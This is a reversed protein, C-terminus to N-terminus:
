LIIRRSKKIVAIEQAEFDKVKKDLVESERESENRACHYNLFDIWFKSTQKEKNLEEFCKIGSPEKFFSSLVDNSILDKQGEIEEIILQTRRQCSLYDFQSLQSSLYQLDNFQIDTSRNGWNKLVLSELVSVLVESTKVESIADRKIVKKSLLENICHEFVSSKEKIKKIEKEIQEFSEFREVYFDFNLDKTEIDIGIEYRFDESVNLKSLKEYLEDESKKNECSGNKVFRVVSVRLLNNCFKFVCNSHPMSGLLAGTYSSLLKNELFVNLVKQNEWMKHLKFDFILEKNDDEYM